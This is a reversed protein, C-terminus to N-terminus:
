GKDMDPDPLARVAAYLNKLTDSRWALAQSRFKRPQGPVNDLHNEDDSLVMLTFVADYKADTYMSASRKHNLEDLQSHFLSQGRSNKESWTLSYKMDDEKGSTSIGPVEDEINEEQDEQTAGAVERKCKLLNFQNRMYDFKQNVQDMLHVKNILKLDKAAMLCLEVGHELAFDCIQELYKKNWHTDKGSNWHFCIAPQATKPDKPWCEHTQDIGSPYEPLDKPMVKPIQMLHKFVEIVANKCGLDTRQYWFLWEDTSVKIPIPNKYLDLSVALSADEEATEKDLMTEANEGSREAEVAQGSPDIPDSPVDKEVNREATLINLVKELKQLKADQAQEAELKEAKEDAMNKYTAIDQQLQKISGDNLEKQAEFDRCLARLVSANQGLPQGGSKAAMAMATPM